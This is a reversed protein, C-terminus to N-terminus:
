KKPNWFGDEFDMGGWMNKYFTREMDISLISFADYKRFALQLNKGLSVKKLRNEMIILKEDDDLDDANEFLHPSLYQQPIGKSKMCKKIKGDPMLCLYMYLKPALNIERFIRGGKADDSLQGLGKSLWGKEELIPLKSAHIHLSDTDTYTFFHEDLTPCIASMANLMHTRSYSLIFTGIQSPKRIRKVSVNDNVPMGIVVVKDKIFQVDTMCFQKNFEWVDIINNCLKTEEFRARELMKGYLANMLIKGIQRLVPNDDNEEKIKYCRMIYENFIDGQKEWVLAKHIKTITYGYKLANQLDQSTYVARRPKLNWSIGGNGDKQPLIPVVLNTNCVIDVEYIGIKSIDTPNEVWESNGLPYEYNVMATPYLSTADANFIWDDMRKYVEKLEDTSKSNVIEDYHKSTFERQMPYTRGGYLSERIFKYKTTDPLEVLEKLSTTWIAFSMSSLTVFETMHVKFVEYLMSSFKDFVEKMGLVDRKVYPEVEDRYKYVDEWSKIKFHDFETKANEESVGFSKCADKLSSLTFLCIDWCRNNEGFKFTMLRNSSLIVNEIKDGRKLLEDMLFHFDFGCGNYACVVKDKQVMLFAIFKEWAETGYEQYYTKDSYWSVAYPIIKDSGNPKFTELDFYLMNEDNFEEKREVKAPIVSRNGSMRNIWMKRRLNCKHKNVWYKGCEDCVHTEGEIMVYHGKNEDTIFLLLHIVKEADGYEGILEADMNYLAIKIAYYKAIKTLDKIHIPTDLAIGLEKRTTDGYKQVGLFQHICAFLCNNNKSKPSMIKLDNFKKRHTNTDCGGERVRRVYVKAEVKKIMFSVLFLKTNYFEERSIIYRLKARIDNRIQNLDFPQPYAKGISFFQSVGNQVRTQLSILLSPRNRGRMKRFGDTRIQEMILDVAREVVETESALTDKSTLYIEPSFDYADSTVADKFASGSLEENKRVSISRVYRVQKQRILGAFKKAQARIKKEKVRQRSALEQKNLKAIRAEYQQKSINRASYALKYSTYLDQRQVGSYKLPRM